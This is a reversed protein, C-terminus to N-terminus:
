RLTEGLAPMSCYPPLFTAASVKYIPAFVEQVAGSWPEVKGNILTKRGDVMPRADYAAQDSPKIVPPALTSRRIWHPM